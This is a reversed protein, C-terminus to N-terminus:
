CDTTICDIVGWNWRDSRGALGVELRLQELSARILDGTITAHSSTHISHTPIIGVMGPGTRWTNAM